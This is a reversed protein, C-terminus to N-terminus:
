HQHPEFVAGEPIAWKETASIAMLCGLLIRVRVRHAAAHTFVESCDVLTNHFQEAPLYKEAIEKAQEVLKLPSKELKDLVYHAYVESGNSYYSLRKDWEFLASEVRQEIRRDGTIQQLLELRTSQTLQFVVTSAAGEGLVFTAAWQPCPFEHGLVNAKEDTFERVFLECRAGRVEKSPLLFSAKRKFNPKRRRRLKDAPIINALVPIDIKVLPQCHPLGELTAIQTAISYAMKPPVADGAQRYKSGFSGGFFQYTLPFSQFTACERITARRFTENESGLVLTERGLQTAVVTRAPRDVRDPWALRGMYPHQTKAQYISRQEVPNFKTDYFHDTLQSSTVKLDYNPDSVIEDQRYRSPSPLHDLVYGMTLWQKATDSTLLDKKNPEYHTQNPLPFNGILYRKRKQPVGYDAAILEAKTPIEFDGDEDIGISRLPINKPLYKQITPVNEMIWYKPKKIYVCRLFSQVLALGDLVNRTKNSKASSFQTCPPGGIIIDADPLQFYDFDKLDQLTAAIRHNATFTKVADRDYDLAAVVDFGALEFGTSFGGPGCFLDIVRLKM